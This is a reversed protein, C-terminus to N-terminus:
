QINETWILIRKVFNKQWIKNWVPAHSYTHFDFVNKILYGLLNM